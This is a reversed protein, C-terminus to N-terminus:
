GVPSRSVSTAVRCQDVKQPEDLALSTTGSTLYRLRTRRLSYRPCASPMDWMGDFALWYDVDESM